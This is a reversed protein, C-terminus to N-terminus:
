YFHTKDSDWTRSVEWAIGGEVVYKEMKEVEESNTPFPLMEEEIQKIKEDFLKQRIDTNTLDRFFPQATMWSFLVLCMALDDNCGDDAQYTDRKLIFTALENIIDYDEIILKHSEILSKLANCGM